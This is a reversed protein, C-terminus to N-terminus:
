QQGLINQKVQERSICPIGPYKRKFVKIVDDIAKEFLYIKIKNM